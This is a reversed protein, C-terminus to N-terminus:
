FLPTVVLVVFDRLYVRLLQVEVQLKPKELPCLYLNDTHYSCLLLVFLCVAGM